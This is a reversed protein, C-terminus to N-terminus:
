ALRISAIKLSLNQRGLHCYNIDLQYFSVLVNNQVLIKWVQLKAESEEFQILKIDILQFDM